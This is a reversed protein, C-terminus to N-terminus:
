KVDKRSGDANAFFRFTNSHEYRGYTEHIDMRPVYLTDVTEDKESDYLYLNEGDALNFNCIYDSVEYYNKNCNIVFSEGSKLTVKPLQFMRKKSSNDSIYYRSLDIDKDGYNELKIWDTDSMAAIEQILLESQKVKEAVPKIKIKGSKTMDATIKLVDGEILKGDVEFGVIKYNPYAQANITFEIGQYYKGSFDEDEFIEINNWYVKAGRDGEISLEYMDTLGFFEKVKSHINKDQTVANEKINEIYNEQKEFDKKDMFLESAKEIKAQEEDVIVAIDEPNFACNMLDCLYVFFKRRYEDCKMVNPFSSDKTRYLSNMISDLVNCKAGEFFEEEDAQMYYILDMDYVLFRYRGDTYKNNGDYGGDYKWFEYNNGPWDNNNMLIQAAYYYLYNDMDVKSELAKRNEEVNLDKNFYENLGIHKFIGVENGKWKTIQESDPLSYHNKLYSDSYNQQIDYVGWYAGNLFMVARSTDCCIDLGAQQCLRSAVSSRINSYKMDQSGSRLRLSHYETPQSLKTSSPAPFSFNIHLNEADYEEGAIIKLSKSAFASSTGGSVALGVQHDFLVDGDKSFMTVQADRIWEDGRQRWNGEIFEAGKAKNEDYTAGDTFIGVNYDYLGYDDSTVSIIDAGYVEEVNDGVLYTCSVASSFSGRFSAAAKLVYLKTTGEEKKLTITKKYRTTRPDKGDLSYYIKSGLPADIDLSLKIEVDDDYCGSPVSVKVVSSDAFEDINAMHRYDKFYFLLIVGCLMVILALM